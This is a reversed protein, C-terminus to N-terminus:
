KNFKFWRQAWNNTILKNSNKYYSLINQFLKKMVSCDTENAIIRLIDCSNARIRDILSATKQAVTGCLADFSDLRAEACITSASRVRPLWLLM